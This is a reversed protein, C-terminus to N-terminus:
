KKGGMYIRFERFCKYFFLAIFFLTVAFAATILWVTLESSLSM